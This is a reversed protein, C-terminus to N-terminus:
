QGACTSRTALSKLMGGDPFRSNGGFVDPKGNRAEAPDIDQPPLSPNLVGRLRIREKAIGDELLKRANKAPQIEEPSKTTPWVFWDASTIEDAL